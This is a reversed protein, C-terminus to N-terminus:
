LERRAKEAAKIAEEKDDFLGLHRYGGLSTYARWKGRDARWNVGYFGSEGCPAQLESFRHYKNESDTVWELNQLLNNARNGDKHNVQPKEQPNEIFAEAVLRHVKFTVVNGQNHLDVLLYGDKDCRQKLFRGRLIYKRSGALIQRRLSKIRGLNSVEYLGQWGQIPLWYEENM